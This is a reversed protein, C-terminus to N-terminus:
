PTFALAPSSGPARAALADNDIAEMVFRTRGLANTVIQSTALRILHAREDDRSAAFRGTMRAPSLRDVFGETAELLRISADRMTLSVRGARPSGSLVAFGGGEYIGLEGNSLIVYHVVVNTASSDMPTAGPKPEWLLSLHLVQGNRISGDLLEEDSLDTLLFSTEAGPSYAFCATQFRSTFRAPDDGLSEARLAGADTRCGGAAVLM